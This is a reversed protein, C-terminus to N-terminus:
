TTNSITARLFEKCFTNNFIKCFKGLYTAQGIVKNFFLSCSIKRSEQFCEEQLVAEFLWKKLTVKKPWKELSFTINNKTACKSKRNFPFDSCRVKRQLIMPIWFVTSSRLHLKWYKVIKAFLKMKSIPSTESYAEPSIMKCNQTDGM